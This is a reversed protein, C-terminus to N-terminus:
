AGDCGKQGGGADCLLEHCHVVRGSGSGSGGNGGGLGGTEGCCALLKGFHLEFEWWMVGFSGDHIAGRISAVEAFDIGIKVGYRECGRGFICEDLRAASCVVADMLASAELPARACRDGIDVLAAFSNMDVIQRSLRIVM